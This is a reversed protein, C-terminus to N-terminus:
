VSLLMDIDKPGGTQYELQKPTYAELIFLGGRILSEQVKHHLRQRLKSPTHAWIAVIAGWKNKGFDFNELDCCSPEIEVGQQVALDRAKALGVSSQDVATVKHGLSALYVANRGEGEALCLVNSVPPIECAKAKLYDNPERGYVFESEGYRENWFNM